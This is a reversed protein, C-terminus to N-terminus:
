REALLARTLAQPPRPSSHVLSKRTAGVVMGQEGGTTHLTPTQQVHEDPVHRPVSTPMSRVLMGECNDGTFMPVPPVLTDGACLTDGAYTFYSFHWWSVYSVLAKQM